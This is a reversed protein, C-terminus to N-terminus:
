APPSIECQAVEDEMQALGSLDLVGYVEHYGAHVAPYEWGVVNVEIVSGSEYETEKSHKKWFKEGVTRFQVYSNEFTEGYWNYRLKKDYSWVVLFPEGLGFMAGAGIPIPHPNGKASKVARCEVSSSTEIKWLRWGGSSKLLTFYVGEDVEREVGVPWNKIPGKASANATLSVLILSFVCSIQRIMVLYGRSYLMFKILAIRGM